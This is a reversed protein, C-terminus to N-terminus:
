LADEVTDASQTKFRARGLEEKTQLCRDGLLSYAHSVIRKGSLSDQHGGIKRFRRAARIGVGDPERGDQISAESEQVDDLGRGTETRSGPAGERWQLGFSQKFQAAHSTMRFVMPYRGPMLQKDPNRFYRDQLDRLLFPGFEDGHACMATGAPIAEFEAASVTRCRACQGTRVTWAEITASAGARGWRILSVRIRTAM